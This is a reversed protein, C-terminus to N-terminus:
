TLLGGDVAFPMMERISSKRVKTGSNNYSYIVCDNDLFENMVQLCAGCCNVVDEEKRSIIHIEKFDYPKAGKTIASFIANREACIGSPYAAAEVNVGKYEKGNKDILICAVQFNSYIAYSKNLLKKLNTYMSNNMKKRRVNINNMIWETIFNMRKAESKLKHDYGYLHLLSHTFLYCFERKESHNYEEAQSIIKQYNIIIDGLPIFDMNKYLKFADLGFSLVDTTKDIGRYKKNLNHVVDPNEFTLDVIIKSKIKFFKAFQELIQSVEKEYIFDYNTNNLFNVEHNIKM